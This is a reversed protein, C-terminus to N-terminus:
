YTRRNKLRPLREWLPALVLVLAFDMKSADAWSLAQKRRVVKSQWVM